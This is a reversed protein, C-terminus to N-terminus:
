SKESKIKLKEFQFFSWNSNIIDARRGFVICDEEPCPMDVVFRIFGALGCVHV